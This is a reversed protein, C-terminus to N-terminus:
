LAAPAPATLVWTAVNLKVRDPGDQAALASRLAPLTATRANIFSLQQREHDTETISLGGLRLDCVGVRQSRPLKRASNATTHNGASSPSPLTHGMKVTLHAQRNRHLM